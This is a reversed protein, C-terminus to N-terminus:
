GAYSEDQEIKSLVWDFEGSTIKGGCFECIGTVNVKLPAGCNPCSLDARAHQPRANRNRIFTWYESWRRLKKKSGSVVSGGADVTYDYGEAWIRLTIANYFADEMIKVPQMSTIKCHDLMNRLRQRRYAEIWYRHMQFINDTEHPRAREWDLTSWAAQLENFIMRARAEFASWNFDPHTKEFYARVNQFSPQVVSPNNTGVEPVNSTLAPGRAERGLLALKRVFWQFEGSEIRAGCFACAGTTDKQLAAGCRPCHLAVAQAPPPSLVDRRREFQWRERAYYTMQEMPGGERGVVETYNTEFDVSIEVMPSALGRVDAVQMSGVIIGTVERLNAPNRAALQARAEDSLYPSLQDLTGAGRAHQARSYLAYCFDTFIIESFNPDFRRLQMLERAVDQTSRGPAVWGGAAASVPPVVSACTSSSWSSVKGGGGSSRRRMFYFILGGIVIIDLPIGIAPYEITLYILLRVLQYLLYAIGGGDGGGGGGGGGGYGQGGGVRALLPSWRALAILILCAVALAPFLTRAHTRLRRNM